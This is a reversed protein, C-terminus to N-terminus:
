GREERSRHGHQTQSATRRRKQEHEPQGVERVPARRPRLRGLNEITLMAADGLGPRLRGVEFRQAPNAAPSTTGIPKEPHPDVSREPDAGAGEGGAANSACARGIPCPAAKRGGTRPDTSPGHLPRSPARAPTCTSTNAALRTTSIGAPIPM